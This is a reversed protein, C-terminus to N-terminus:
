EIVGQPNVSFTFAFDDNGLTFAGWNVTKGTQKEFIIDMTVGPNPNLAVDTILLTELHLVQNDVAVPSYSERFQTMTNTVPDFHIGYDSSTPNKQALFRTQDLLITARHVDMDTLAFGYYRFYAGVGVGALVLFLSLAIIVETFTFGKPHTRNFM